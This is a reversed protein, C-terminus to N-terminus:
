NTAYPNTEQKQARPPNNTCATVYINTLPIRIPEKNKTPHPHEIKSQPTVSLGPFGQNVYM